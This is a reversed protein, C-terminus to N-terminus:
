PNVEASRWNTCPWCLAILVLALFPTDGAEEADWQAVSRFEIVAGMAFCAAFGALFDMM